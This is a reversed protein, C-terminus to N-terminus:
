NRGSEQLQLKYQGKKEIFQNYKSEKVCKKEKKQINIITRKNKSFNM